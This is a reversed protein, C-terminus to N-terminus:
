ITNRGEADSGVRVLTGPLRGAGKWLMENVPVHQEENRGLDEGASGVGCVNPCPESIM